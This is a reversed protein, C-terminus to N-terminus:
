YWLLSWVIVVKFAFLSNVIAGTRTAAVASILAASGVGLPCAWSPWVIM